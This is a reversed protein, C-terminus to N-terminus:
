LQRKLPRVPPLHTAHRLGPPLPGTSWVVRLASSQDTTTRRLGDLAHTQFFRRYRKVAESEDAADSCLHSGNICQEPYSQPTTDYRSEDLPKQYM